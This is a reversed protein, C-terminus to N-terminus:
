PLLEKVDCDLARALEYAKDLTINVEGREIRGVYSRDIDSTLALEDQSLARLKRMKRVKLGFKLALDKM